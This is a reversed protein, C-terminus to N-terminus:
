WRKGENVKKNEEEELLLKASKSVSLSKSEKIKELGVAGEKGSLAFLARYICFWLIQMRESLLKAQNEAAFARAFEPFAALKKLLPIFEARKSHEAVYAICEMYAFIGKRISEYDREGESLRETVIIFPKMSFSKGFALTNMEYVLEPMVGHDPLLQVCMVSGERGPLEGGAAELRALIDKEIEETFSDCGHFLALKKLLFLLKKKEAGQTNQEELGRIRESLLPLVRDSEECVVTLLPSKHIEEYTFPVDVWHTRCSETIQAVAERLDEFEGEGPLILSDGTIEKIWLKRAQSDLNEVLVGEKVAKASLLGLVAGQHMLDPQMRLSPFANHTASFAKGATYLGKLQRGEKDLPLFASLPIQIKVQPPLYGCYVMDADLKGKPDYNSFSTYIGDEYSHLLCIDRLDVTRKGAIHRRERVSVYSGHDFCNAGRQRGTCIFRTRDEVDDLRVMSSFNNQYGCADTYQALSAWYTISDRESGYNVAAGAAAALDGDGTADIVVSGYFIKNGERGATVVGRIRSGEKIVDYALQGFVVLVGAELCLRLLVMGRIGPHFADYDDFIGPPRKIDYRRCLKDTEEDIEKVDSFRTGFWYANVGGLTGTGGLDYQPEILVTRAGGRAAYLAAMAGATGGGAVVVDAKEKLVFGAGLAGKDNETAKRGPLNCIRDAFRGLKLLPEKKKELEFCSLVAKRAKLYNEATGKQEEYAFSACIVRHAGFADEAWASLSVNEAEEPMEYWETHRSFIATIGGKEAFRAEAEGEIYYLGYYFRVGAKRCLLELYGKCKDPIYDGQGYCDEPFFGAPIERGTYRCTGCVDAALYAEEAALIVEKGQRRLELARQLGQFTNGILLYETQFTKNM